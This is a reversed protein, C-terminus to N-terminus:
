TSRGNGGREMSATLVKGCPDTSLGTNVLSYVSLQLFIPELDSYLVQSHTCCWVNKRTGM